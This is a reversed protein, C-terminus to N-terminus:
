GHLWRPLTAPRRVLVAAHRGGDAALTPLLHGGKECGELPLRM